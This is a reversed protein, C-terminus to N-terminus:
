PVYKNPRKAPNIPSVKNTDELEDSPGRATVTTKVGLAKNAAEIKLKDAETYAGMYARVGIFSETDIDDHNGPSRAMIMSARYLGYYRDLPNSYSGPSAAELERSIKGKKETLFDKARM